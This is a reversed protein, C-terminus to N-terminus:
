KAPLEGRIEPVAVTTVGPGDSEIARLLASLMQTHTVLGLRTAAERTQPLRRLLWYIPLLVIPWWHRRGLVYWPRLITTPMTLARVLTEGAARAAIYARM